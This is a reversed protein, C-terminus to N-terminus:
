HVEYLMKDSTINWASTKTLALLEASPFGSIQSYWGNASFLTSSACFRFICFSLIYHSWGGPYTPAPRPLCYGFVTWALPCFPLPPGSTEPLVVWSPIRPCPSVPIPSPLKPSCPAPSKGCRHKLVTLAQERGPSCVTVALSQGPPQIAVEAEGLLLPYASLSHWFSKGRDIFALSPHPM